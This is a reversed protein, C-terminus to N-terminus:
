LYMHYRREAEREEKPAAYGSGSGTCVRPKQKKSFISSGRSKKRSVRWSQMENGRGGCFLLQKEAEQATFLAHTKSLLIFERADGMVVFVHNELYTRYSSTGKESQFLLDKLVVSERERQERHPLYWLVRENRGGHSLKWVVRKILEM